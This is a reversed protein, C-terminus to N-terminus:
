GLEPHLFDFVLAEIASGPIHSPGAGGVVMMRSEDLAVACHNERPRPLNEGGLWGSKTTLDFIEV